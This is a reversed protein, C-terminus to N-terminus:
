PDDDALSTRIEEIQDPRGADAIVQHVLVLSGEALCTFKRMLYDYPVLSARDGRQVTVSEQCARGDILAAM